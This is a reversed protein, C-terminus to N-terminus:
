FSYKITLIDDAHCKTNKPIVVTLWGAVGDIETGPLVHGNYAVRTKRIRSSPLKIRIRREKLLGNLVRIEVGKPGHIFYHYGHATTFLIRLQKRGPQPTFTIQGHNLRYGALAPLISWASMPRFYHGGFEKHDWYIGWHRYRQDVNRIVRIGETVMGEYILLSAFALEVGTWCTNAQDCWCDSAVDHLFADGPWQCNLVGQDAKYNMKLISRLAKRVRTSEFPLPLGALHACWQGVLQDTLCGEDRGKVLDDFLRYYAGNWCRSELVERGQQWVKKYRSAADDDGLFEAAEIAAAIAALWQGAVYPTVGYMPFNDYSCMIGEMDPLSDGDKDRERLIYDLAAKISPWM